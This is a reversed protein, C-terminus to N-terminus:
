EGLAEALASRTIDFHSANWKVDGDVIWMAQPSAHEVGTREAIALSLPREEVVNVWATPTDPNAELFAEYESQARTSISCRHSHKFLLIRPKGLAQELDNENRIRTSM